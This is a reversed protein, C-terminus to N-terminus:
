VRRPYRDCAMRFHGDSSDSVQWNTLMSSQHPAYQRQGAQARGHISYFERDISSFSREELVIAPSTPVGLDFHRQLLKPRAARLDESRDRKDHDWSVQQPHVAEQSVGLRGGLGGRVPRESGRSVKLRGSSGEGVPRERSERSVRPRGSSGRRLGIADGVSKGDSGRSGRPEQMNGVPLMRLDAGRNIQSSDVPQRLIPERYLGTSKSPTEFPNANFGAPIEEEEVEEQDTRPSSSMNPPLFKHHREHYAYGQSLNGSYSIADGKEPRYSSAAVSSPVTKGRLSSRWKEIPLPLVSSPADPVEIDSEEGGSQTTM